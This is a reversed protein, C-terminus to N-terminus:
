GSVRRRSNIAPGIRPTARTDITSAPKTNVSYQLPIRPILGALPGTRPHSKGEPAHSSAHIVRSKRTFRGLDRTFCARTVRSNAHNARSEPTGQPQPYITFVMSIVTNQHYQLRANPATSPNFIFNPRNERSNVRIEADPDPCVPHNRRHPPHKEAAPHPPNQLSFPM